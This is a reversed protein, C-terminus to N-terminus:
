MMGPVTAMHDAWSGDAPTFQTRGLAMAVMLKRRMEEDAAQFVDLTPPEDGAISHRLYALRGVVQEPGYGERALGEVMGSIELPEISIEVHDFM